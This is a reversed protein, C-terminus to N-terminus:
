YVYQVLKYRIFFALISSLVQIILVSITTNRESMPGLHALVLNILTLNNCEAIQGESDRRFVKLLGVAELLRLVVRALVSPPKKASDFSVTSCQLLGTEKQLRPMRHRPCDVLRFLQPCSYLFNFIQPLFFLVLTKSFHGLIGVVAFTM